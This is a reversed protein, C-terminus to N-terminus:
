PLSKVTVGLTLSFLTSVEPSESMRVTVDLEVQSTVTVHKSSTRFRSTVCILTLRRLPLDMKELTKMLVNVLETSLTRLVTFNVDM